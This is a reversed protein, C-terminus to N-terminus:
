PLGCLTITLPTSTDGNRNTGPAPRHHPRHRVRWSLVFWPATVLEASWFFTLKAPFFMRTTVTKSAVLGDWSAYCPAPLYRGNYPRHSPPTRVADRAGKQLRPSYQRRQTKGTTTIVAERRNLCGPRSGLGPAHLHKACYKRHAVWGPVHAGHRVPSSPPIRPRRLTLDVVVLVLM